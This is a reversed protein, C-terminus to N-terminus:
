FFKSQENRFLSNRASVSIGNSQPNLKAAFSASPVDIMVKNDENKIDNAM